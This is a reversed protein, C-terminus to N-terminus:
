IIASHGLQWAILVRPRVRSSSRCASNATALYRCSARVSGYLLPLRRAALKAYESALHRLGGTADSADIECGDQDAWKLGLYGMWTTLASAFSDLLLAQTRTIRARWVPPRLSVYMAYARQFYWLVNYVAKIEAESLTVVQGPQHRSTPEFATGALQRDDAVPSTCSQEVVALVRDYQSRRNASYTYVLGVAPIAAAVLGEVVSLWNTM